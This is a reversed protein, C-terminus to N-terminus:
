PVIGLDDVLVHAIRSSKEALERYTWTGEPYRFVPRDGWEDLVQDLLVDACNLRDPYSLEPIGTWDRVPWLEPPPLRDQCFTDVHGPEAMRRRRARTRM